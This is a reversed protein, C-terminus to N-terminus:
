FNNSQQEESSSKPVGAVASPTSVNPRFSDLSLILVGKTHNELM